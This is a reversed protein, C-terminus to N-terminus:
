RKQRKPEKLAVRITDNPHGINMGQGHITYTKEYVSRRGNIIQVVVPTPTQNFVRAEFRGDARTYFAHYPKGRLNPYVVRVEVGELPTNNLDCVTAHIKSPGPPLANNREDNIQGYTTMSLSCAILALFKM